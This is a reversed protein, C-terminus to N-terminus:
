RSHGFSSGFPPGLAATQRPVDSSNGFTTLLERLRTFTGLRGEQQPVDGGGHPWPTRRTVDPHTTPRGARDGLGHPSRKGHLTDNINYSGDPAPEEEQCDHHRATTSPLVFSGSCNRPIANCIRSCLSTM